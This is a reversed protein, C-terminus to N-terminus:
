ESKKNEWFERSEKLIDGIDEDDSFDIDDEDEEADEFGEIDLDIESSEDSDSDDSMDDADLDDDETILESAINKGDEDSDDEESDDEEEAAKAEPEVEKEKDEEKDKDETEGDKEQLEPEEIVDVSNDDPIYNGDRDFMLSGNLRLEFEIQFAVENNHVIIKGGKSELDKVKLKDKIIENISDLDLDDKIADILDKEGEKIIDPDTLKM